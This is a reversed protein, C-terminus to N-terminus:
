YFFIEKLLSIYYSNGHLSTLAARSANFFFYLFKVLPSKQSQKIWRVSDEPSLRTEFTPLGLKVAGQAPLMRLPNQVYHVSPLLLSIVRKDSPFYRWGHWVTFPKYLVGDSTMIFGSLMGLSLLYWLFHKSNLFIFDPQVIRSCLVDSFETKSSLCSKRCFCKCPISTASLGSELM